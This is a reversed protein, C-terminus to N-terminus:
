YIHTCRTQLGWVKLILIHCFFEVSVRLYVCYIYFQPILKKLNRLGHINYCLLNQSHRHLCMLPRARTARAFPVTTTNLLVGPLCNNPLLKSNSVQKV